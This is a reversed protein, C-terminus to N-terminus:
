VKIRKEKTYSSYIKKGKKRTYTRMRLYLNKGTSMCQIRFARKQIKIRNEYLKIKQYASWKSDKYYIELYKGQYKKLQVLLYRISGTQRKQVRVIPRALSRIKIRLTQSEAQVIQKGGVTKVAKVRYYYTKGSKVSTDQYHTKTIKKKIQKYGSARSTSRYIQYSTGPVSNWTLKVKTYHDATAKLGLLRLPVPASLNPSETNTTSAPTETMVQNPAAGSGTGAPPSTPPPTELPVASETPTLTEQPVASETPM